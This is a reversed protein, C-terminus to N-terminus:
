ATGWVRRMGFYALLLLGGTAMLSVAKILLTWELSYYFWSLYALSAAIGLGTLARRGRTFGLLLLLMGVVLGAAWWGVLAFLSAAALAAIRRPIPVGQTLRAVTWLFILALVLPNILDRQGWGLARLDGNQRLFYHTEFAPAVIVLLALTVGMALPLFGTRLHLQSTSEYLWLVAMLWASVALMPSAKLSVNLGFHLALIAFMTSLLRHLFHPMLSALLVQMLAIGFLATATDTAHSTFLWIGIAGQGAMSLALAFQEGLDHQTLRYIVFAAAILLLGVIMWGDDRLADFLLAGIFALLFMGGLWGCVGLMLRVYWPTPVTQPPWSPTQGPKVLGAAQLQRWIEPATTKSTNM